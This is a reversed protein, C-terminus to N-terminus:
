PLCEARYKKRGGSDITYPVDCAQGDRAKPNSPDAAGGDKPKAPAVDRTPRTRGAGQSTETPLTSPSAGTDTTAAAEVALPTFPATAANVAVVPEGGKRRRALFGGFVLASLAIGLLVVAMTRKRAPRKRLGEADIAISLPIDSVRPPPLVSPVTPNRAALATAGVTLVTASVEALAARPAIAELADAMETASQFRARRDRSLARAVFADIGRPLEAGSGEISPVVGLLAKRMTDVENAGAFLREMAFAEWLMIGVAYLDATRDVLEGHIQEPPMYALKGKLSGDRTTTAARGVARAIGFDLVRSSGDTGVIVNQPSVDRHVIQLREGRESRAEHAAHLGALIDQAIASIVGNPLQLEQRSAAVLLEAVTLGRVFPMVLVVEGEWRIVEIVPVVNPHRIHTLLRAEDELTVTSLEGEAVDPPMKKLAVLAGSELDRGLYVCAMGGRGLLSLVSYRGISAGGPHRTM